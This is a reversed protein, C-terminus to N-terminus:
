SCRASNCPWAARPRSSRRILHSRRRALWPHKKTWEETVETLPKTIDAPAAVFWTARITIQAAWGGRRLEDLLAQVQEHNAKKQTIILTSQYFRIAGTDQILSILAAESEGGGNPQSTPSQILPYNSTFRVLDGVLYTRTLLAEPQAAPQQALAMPELIVVALWFTGVIKLITHHM